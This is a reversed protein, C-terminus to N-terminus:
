LWGGDKIQSMVEELLQMEMDEEEPSSSQYLAVAKEYYQRFTEYERDSNPKEQQIDVELFALRKYPRYNEEDRSIQEQLVKYALEYDGTQQSLIAINEYTTDTEWGQAIVTQLIEIASRAYSGNQTMDYLDIYSQALRELILLQEKAPLTERAETLLAAAKLYNEETKGMAKYTEDCMVYARMRLGDEQAQDICALFDAEAEEYNGKAKAIEGSALSLDADSLSLKRAQELIKEAEDLRELRALAIAYDRYYLSNTGNREIAAAFYSCAREYIEQEFYCNALIFYFDALNNQQAVEENYLINETIFAAAEEYAGTEYLYLAKQYGAEAAEPLLGSAEQYLEELTAGDQEKRAEEMKHTLEQYRTQKEEFIRDRGALMLLLGAFFVVLFFLGTLWQRVRLLRYRGDLRYINEIAKRMAEASRFRDQPREEMAKLLIAEFSRSLHTDRGTEREQEANETRSEPRRGGTAIYYLTAGASYLDSREDAHVKRGEAAAQQEPSAFSKSYGKTLLDRDTLFGSINFDILCINDEPTLILNSPKVDGHIIAPKQGHLYALTETLQSAYKILERQSFRRGDRVLRDFAVGPVYDMVTFIDEGYRLFDFVQPLYPHHLNKLIDAEKAPDLVQALGRHMRKLVVQKRLRMHYAKYVTGGGGSGIEELVRYTNNIVQGFEM